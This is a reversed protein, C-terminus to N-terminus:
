SCSQRPRLGSRSPLTSRAPPIPRTELISHTPPPSKNTILRYGLGVVGLTSGTELNVIARFQPIVVNSRDGQSQDKYFISKFGVPFLIKTLNTNREM